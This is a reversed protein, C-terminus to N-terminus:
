LRRRKGKHHQDRPSRHSPQGDRHSGLSARKRKHSSPGFNWQEKRQLGTQAGRAHQMSPQQKPKGRTGSDNGHSSRTGEEEDDDIDDEDDAEGMLRDFEQQSIKGRRLKKMLSAERAM